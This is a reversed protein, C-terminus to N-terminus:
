NSALVPNKIKVPHGFEELVEFQFFYSLTGSMILITFLPLSFVLSVQQSWFFGIFGLIGLFEHLWFFQIYQLFPYRIVKKPMVIWEEPMWATAVNKTTFIPTNLYFLTSFVLEIFIDGAQHFNRAAFFKQLFIIALIMVTIATQVPVETVSSVFIRGFGLLVFLVFFPQIIYMSIPFLLIVYSAITNKEPMIKLAKVSQLTGKLWRRDRVIMEMYNNPFGEQTCVDMCYRVDKGIKPLIVAEWVDHSKIKAVDIVKSEEIIQGVKAFDERKVLAGSGYYGGQGLANFFGRAYLLATTNQGISLLKSFYTKGEDATLHSQFIAVNKNAPHQAKQLLKEISGSPYFTDADCTALYEIDTRNKCFDYIGMQKPPRSPVHTALVGYKEAEKLVLKEEEIREKLTSNSLIVVESLVDCNAIVNPIIKQELDEENKLSFVLVAKKTLGNKEIEYKDAKNPLFSCLAGITIFFINYNLVTLLGLWLGDFWAWGPHSFISQNLIYTLLIALFAPVFVLVLSPTKFM